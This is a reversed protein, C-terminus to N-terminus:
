RSAVVGCCERAPHFGHGEMAHYTGIVLVTGLLLGAFVDSTWHVDLYVRSAAVTLIVAASGFFAATRAIKNTTAEWVVLPVLGYFGVAALVHGSPFSPGNGPLLQDLDPRVRGVLEKFLVEFLPNIAIAAVIIAVTTTCRKTAWAWVALGFALVGIVYRTGLETLLVMTTNLWGTRVEMTTEQVAADVRMLVTEEVVAIVALCVFLGVCVYILLRARRDDRVAAVVRETVKHATNMMTNEARPVVVKLPNKRYHPRAAM